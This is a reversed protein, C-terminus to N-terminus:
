ESARLDRLLHTTFARAGEYNLHDGDLFHEDPVDMESYDLVRLNDFDRKLDGILTDFTREISRPIGARFRPHMPTHVIWLPLKRRNCMEAIARIHEIAIASTAGVDSESDEEYFYFRIKDDIVSDGVHNGTDHPTPATWFERNADDSGGRYYQLIAKLDEMYGLPLGLDYKARAVLHDENYWPLRDRGEADLTPFYEMYATRSGADVNFLYKDQSVSIHIPALTLVVTEILPNNDLLHRLKHHTFFVAEGNRAASASRPILQPNINSLSHSAGVLLTDVQADVRYRAPDFVPSVLVLRGLGACLLLLACVGAFVGALWRGQARASVPESDTLPPTQTTM